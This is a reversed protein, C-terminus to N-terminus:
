STRRQRLPVVVALVIGILCFVIGAGLTMVFWQDLEQIGYRSSQLREMPTATPFYYLRVPRTHPGVSLKASGYHTQGQHEFRVLAEHYKRSVGNSQTSESKLRACLVTAQVTEPPADKDRPVHFYAFSLTLFFAGVFLGTAAPVFALTRKFRFCALVILGLPFLLVWFLANWGVFWRWFLGMAVLALGEAILVRLTLAHRLKPPLDLNVHDKGEDDTRRYPWLLSFLMAQLLAFGFLIFLSTLGSASFFPHGAVLLEGSSRRQAEITFPLGRELNGALEILTRQWRVTFGNSLRVLPDTVVSGTNSELAVVEVDMSPGPLDPNQLRVFLSGFAVFAMPFLMAVAWEKWSVHVKGLPESLKQEASFRSQEKAYATARKPERRTTKSYDM